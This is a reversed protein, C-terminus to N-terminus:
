ATGTAVPAHDTLFQFVLEMFKAASAIGDFYTRGTTSQALVLPDPDHYSM